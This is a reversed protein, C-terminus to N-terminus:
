SWSEHAQVRHWLALDLTNMRELADAHKTSLNARLREKQVRPSVNKRENCAFKATALPFHWNLLQGVAAFHSDAETTLLLTYNRLCEALQEANPARRQAYYAENRLSEPPVIEGKRFDSGYCLYTSMEDRPLCEPPLAGVMTNRTVFALESFWREEPQRLVAVSQVPRAFLSSLGSEQHGYVVRIEDRESQNLARLADLGNRVKTPKGLWSGVAHAHHFTHFCRMSNQACWVQLCRELSSGGTKPIHVFNLVAEPVPTALPYFRTPSRQVIPPAPISTSYSANFGIACVM